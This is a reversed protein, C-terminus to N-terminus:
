ILFMLKVKDCTRMTPTGIGWCCQSGVAADEAMKKNEEREMQQTQRMLEAERKQLQRQEKIETVTLESEQEEDTDPGQHFSLVILFM